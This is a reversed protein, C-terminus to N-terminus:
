PDEPLSVYSNPDLDMSLILEKHRDYLSGAGYKMFHKRQVEKFSIGEKWAIWARLSYLYKYNSKPIPLKKFDWPYLRDELFQGNLAQEYTEDLTYALGGKSFLDYLTRGVLAGGLGLEKFDYFTLEKPDKGLQYGMWELMARIMMPDKYMFDPARKLQWPYLKKSPFEGQTTFRKISPLSYAFGGKVFIDYISFKHVLKFLRFKKFDVTTLENVPKGTKFSLWKILVFMMQSDYIKSPKQINHLWPYVVDDPFYGERAYMLLKRMSPVFGSRSLFEYYSGGIDGVYKYYVDYPIDLASMNFKWSMWSVLTLRQKFTQPSKSSRLNIFEWIYPRDDRFDDNTYHNFAEDWGYVLNGSELIRVLSDGYALSVYRALGRDRFHSLSIESLDELMEENMLYDVFERVFDGSQRSLDIELFGNSYLRVLEDDPLNSVYYVVALDKLGSRWYEFEEGVEKRLYDLYEPYFMQSTYEEFSHELKPALEEFGRSTLKWTYKLLLGKVADM